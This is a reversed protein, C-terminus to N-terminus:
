RSTAVNKALDYSPKDLKNKLRHEHSVLMNSGGKYEGRQELSAKFAGSAANMSSFMVGPAHFPPTRTKFDINSRFNNSLRANQRDHSVIM